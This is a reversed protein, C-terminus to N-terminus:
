RVKKGMQALHETFAREAEIKNNGTKRRPIAQARYKWQGCKCTWHPESKGALGAAYNMAHKHSESYCPDCVMGDVLVPNWCRRRLPDECIAM